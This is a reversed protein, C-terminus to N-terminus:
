GPRCRHRLPDQPPHHGALPTRGDDEFRPDVIPGRGPPPHHRQEGRAHPHGGVVPRAEAAAGRCGTQHRDIPLDVIQGRHDGPKLCSRAYQGSVAPAANQDLQQGEAPRLQRRAQNQHVRPVLPHFARQRQGKAPPPPGHVADEGVLQAFVSGHRHRRHPLHAGGRRGKGIHRDDHQASGVGEGEGRRNRACQVRRCVPSTAAAGCARWMTTSPLPWLM